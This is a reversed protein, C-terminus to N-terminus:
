ERVQDEEVLPVDQKSWVKEMTDPVQSEQLITKGTFISAFFASFIEAQVMTKTVLDGHWNLLPVVNKRAKRKSSIYKYFGKKNGKVDKVM